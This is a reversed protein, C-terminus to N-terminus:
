NQSNEISDLDFGEPLHIQDGADPRSETGLLALSILINKAITVIFNILTMQSKVALDTAQMSMLIYFFNGAFYIFFGVAIWFSITSSIVVDVANQMRQFLFIIIVFLIFLFEFILTVAPSSKWKGSILAYLTFGIFVVLLGIIIYRLVRGRIYSLFFVTITAAEFISFVKLNLGTAALFKTTDSKLFTLILLSLLAFFALIITYIFFVKLTSSNIKKYFLICFLLPLFETFTTPQDL